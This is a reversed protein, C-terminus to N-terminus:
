DNTVEILCIGCYYAAHSHKSHGSDYPHGCGLCRQINPKYEEKLLRTMKRNEKEFQKLEEKTLM